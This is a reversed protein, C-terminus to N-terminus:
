DVYRRAITAPQPAIGFSGRFVHRSQDPHEEAFLWGVLRGDSAAVRAHDEEKSARDGHWPWFPAQERCGLTREAPGCGVRVHFHDAHTAGSGPQHLVWTARFVAQPSPEHRAAYRLLRAKIDDSCFLWKVRAGPDMLLTRVLHWNRAEDFSFVRDNRVALGYRDFRMWSGSDAAMGGADRAYFMLDADRGARHSLHRQHAGGRRNSLDGVRLPYGGPFADAVAKAAREIAEILTATGYRTEERPRLRHYGEGRDPLSVAHHLYGQDSTGISITQGAPLPKSVCACIAAIALTTLIRVM